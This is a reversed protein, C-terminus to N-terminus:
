VRLAGNKRDASVQKAWQIMQHLHHCASPFRSADLMPWVNGKTGSPFDVHSRLDGQARAAWKKRDEAGGEPAIVDVFEALKDKIWEAGPTGIVGLETLPILPVICEVPKPKVVKADLVTTHRTNKAGGASSPTKLPEFAKVIADCLMTVADILDVKPAPRAPLGQPTTPSPLLKNGRWMVFMERLVGRVAKANPATSAQAVTIAQDLTLQYQQNRGRELSSRVLVDSLEGDVILRKIAKRIDSPDIYGLNRALEIDSITARDGGNSAMTLLWAMSTGVDTAVEAVFEDGNAKSESDTM